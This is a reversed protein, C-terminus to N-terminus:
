CNIPVDEEIAYTPTTFINLLTPYYVLSNFVEKIVEFLKPPNGLKMQYLQYNVLERQLEGILDKSWNDKLKLSDEDSIKSQSNEDNLLKWIKGTLPNKLNHGKIFNRTNILAEKQKEIIKKESM